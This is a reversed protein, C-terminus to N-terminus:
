AYCEIRGVIKPINFYYGANMLHKVFREILRVSTCWELHLDCGFVLLFNEYDLDLISHWVLVFIIKM